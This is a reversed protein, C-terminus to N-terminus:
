AKVSDSGNLRDIEVISHSRNGDAEDADFVASAIM